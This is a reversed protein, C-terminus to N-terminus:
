SVSGAVPKTPHRTGIRRLSLGLTLANAIVLISSASMSVAAILPTAFGLVAIPVAIINYGVALAFNGSIKRRAKRATVISQLVPGLQEGTFVIGAAAQAIDAGSAPSMSVHAAALAPADNLGDGVMLVKRGEKALVELAEVKGGPLCNSLSQSIGAQAAIREVAGQADGSVLRIDLGLAELEAITAKADSRLEDSFLFAQPEDDGIRLWVESLGSRRDTPADVWQARGLRVPLGNWRAEVGFGPREALDTVPAARINQADAAEALARSLPHRSGGALAASVAWADGAEPGQVLRPTGLTLTGTKDFVVTDVESLKELAAGDKLIIGASLLRGAAVVQVAPVALGLACPCTIILVAVAATVAAHVGFGLVLWGILTLFAASHVAPAYLRSARDALRVFRGDPREVKEMLRIIGALVTENAPATARMELPGTLNNAGAHIAAGEGVAEPVSEGTLLARDLDSAGSTVIGDVPVREGPLVRLTDGIRVSSIPIDRARGDPLVLSAVTPALTLLRAAAGRAVDRMRNDLVRGVLLFFLLAVSGDFWAHEGSTITEYLSLATAGLVGIAIPVDMNTRGYRLANWASRFFPRGSYIVTPIAIMASLWYFLDRTTGDAGSWVSVSLLMVNMSAFGAVAMCRMLESAENKTDSAVGPDFPRASRGVKHLAELVAEPSGSPDLDVALRKTTLNARAHAVGPVASATREVKALCGACHMDDVLLDLSRTGDKATRIFAPDILRIPSSLTTTASM